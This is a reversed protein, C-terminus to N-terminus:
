ELVERGVAMNMQAAASLYSGILNLYALQTDRYSKEADLYDLLSAGGNQYAVTMRDRVDTALPLYKTKYPRLLNLNQVLTYYASDVDSFIQAETATKLRENREIDIQTRAKEGQNRDFIRLPISVSGGITDTAFSNAFSPNHSYWASITPDTSGNAEALQHNIKALQINQVAQKLDPRAELAMNRYAELPALEEQYEFAGTVDFKEVPTRENLLMMLQIKATRLNVVATEYDSEFQVRQLEMRNLDILALDGAKYRNRNVGLEKDWYQLNQQANNLVAKAQLIQVFAARLNFLLNREQDLYAAEAIATSQKASDRRLERKHEREHLYSIGPTVVVGSLPRWVPNPNLQFGDATMTLDPNPRLYATIEAARSEDITLQAARLTPNTAQFKEEIQRWTFATQANM